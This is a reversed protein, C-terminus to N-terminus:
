AMAREKAARILRRLEVSGRADRLFEAARERCLGRLSGELGLLTSELAAEGSGEAAERRARELAALNASAEAAPGTRDMGASKYSAAGSVYFKGMVRGVVEGAHLQPWWDVGCFSGLDVGSRGRISGPCAGSGSGLISGSRNWVM